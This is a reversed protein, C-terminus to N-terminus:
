RLKDKLLQFKEQLLVLDAAQINKLPIAMSTAMSDIDGGKRDKHTQVIVDDRLTHLHLVGTLSDGVFEASRFKLFHFSFFEQKGNSYYKKYRCFGSGSFQLEYNKLALGSAHLNYHTNLKDQIYFAEEDAPGIAVFSLFVYCFLTFIMIKSSCTFMQMKESNLKVKM